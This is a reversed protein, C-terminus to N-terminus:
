ETSDLFSQVLHSSMKSLWKETPFQTNMKQPVQLRLLISSLVPHCPQVHGRRASPLQDYKYLRAASLSVLHRIQCSSHVMVSCFCIGIQKIVLSSCYPRPDCNGAPRGTETVLIRSKALARILLLERTRRMSVVAQAAEPMSCPAGLKLCTTM